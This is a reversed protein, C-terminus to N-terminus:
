FLKTIEKIKQAFKNNWSENSDKESSFVFEESNVSFKLTVIEKYPREIELNYQKIEEYSYTKLNFNEGNTTVLYFKTEFFFYLSSSKEKDFLDKCYFEKIKEVEIMEEIKSLAFEFDTSEYDRFQYHNSVQKFGEFTLIESM